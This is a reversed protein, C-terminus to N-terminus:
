MYERLGWCDLDGYLKSNLNRSSKQSELAWAETGQDLSCIRNAQLLFFCSESLSWVRHIVTYCVISIIFLSSNYKKVVVLYCHKRINTHYTVIKPCTMQSMQLLFLGTFDSYSARNEFQHWSFLWSTKFLQKWCNIEMWPSMLLHKPNNCLMICRQRPLDFKVTLASYALLRSFFGCLEVQPEESAGM